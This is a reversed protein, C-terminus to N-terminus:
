RANATVFWVLLALLSSAGGVSARVAGSDEHQELGWSWMGPREVCTGVDYCSPTGVAADGDWACLDGALCEQQSSRTACLGVELGFNVMRANANPMCFDWNEGAPTCSSDSLSRDILCWSMGPASGSDGDCPVRMGCAKHIGRSAGFPMSDSPCAGETAQWRELCTCGNVTGGVANSDKWECCSRGDPHVPGSHSDECEARPNRRNGDKTRSRGALACGCVEGECHARIDACTTM